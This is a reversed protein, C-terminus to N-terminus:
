IAPRVRGLMAMLVGDKKVYHHWLAASAHLGILGFLGWALNGHLEVLAEAQARDHPALRPLPIVGFLSIHAHAAATQMLGIVPIGILLGYMVVQSALSGWRLLPPLESDMAPGMSRRLVIRVLVLAAVILGMLRHIDTFVSKLGHDEILDRGWGIAFIAAVLGLVSWHILVM